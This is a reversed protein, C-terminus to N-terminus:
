IAIQQLEDPFESIQIKNQLFFSLFVHCNSKSLCWFLIEVAFLLNQINYMDSHVIDRGIEHCHTFMDEEKLQSYNLEKSM